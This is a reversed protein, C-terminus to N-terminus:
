SLAAIAKKIRECAQLLEEDSKAFCLRLFGASGFESGPVLAVGVEELLYTSVDIDSALITGGPTTKGLLEVCGVFHYFAGDPKTLTLERVADLADYVLDRRRAYADNWDRLYEQPGSLAALAAAQGVSSPNTTSQGQLKTMAAILDKPGGAYGIRWGTMAYSKSVGNVTLVRDKLDPAVEVMTAFQAGEFVIAEYIDDCMVAVHPYERLVAAMARLDDASYVAGSPNGPSNLIVWRTKANIASRLADSSLKFSNEIGCDVIVPIGDAIAVMDPYSVWYPAPIIVEDGPNLSAILANFILQKAGTGVILEDLSYNIRNDARFKEAVALRLEPTGAVATYRTAGAKAAEFAAKIVFDPTDFDPEGEGLEIVDYGSAKLERAMQALRVTGSVRTKRIKEGIQM